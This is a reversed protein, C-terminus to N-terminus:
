QALAPDAHPHALFIQRQPEHPDLALRKAAGPRDSPRRPRARWRADPPVPGPIERSADSAARVPETRCEFARHPRHSHWGRRGEFWELACAAAQMRPEDSEKVLGAQRACRATLSCILLAVEGSETDRWNRSRM